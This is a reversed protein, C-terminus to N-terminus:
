NVVDAGGASISILMGWGFSTTDGHGTRLFKYSYGAQGRLDKQHPKPAGSCNPAGKEYLIFRFIFHIHPSLDRGTGVYGKKRKLVGQIIM